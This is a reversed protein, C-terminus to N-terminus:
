STMQWHELCTPLIDIFIQTSKEKPWQIEMWPMWDKGPTLYNSQGDAKKWRRFNMPQESYTLRSKQEVVSKFFADSSM